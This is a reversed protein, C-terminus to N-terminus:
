NLRDAAFRFKSGYSEMYSQSPYLGDTFVITGSHVFQKRKYYRLDYIRVAAKEGEECEEFYSFPTFTAFFRGIATSQARRSLASSSNVPLEAHIRIVPSFVGVRGVQYGSGTKLLFDWYFLRTLCPMLLVSRIDADAFSARLRAASRQKLRHRAAIYFVITLVSVIALLQPSLRFFHLILLLALLLPDFVNLLHCSKREKRVPWLISSGHTNFFDMITHSLGGLLSWFFVSAPSTAPYLLLFAGTILSSWLLLGPLSHSFARHHQLYAVPGKVRTLIDLDPAQSALLSALYVPDNLSFPHGSFSGVAIGIVAHTLADM